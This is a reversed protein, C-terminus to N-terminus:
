TLTGCAQLFGNVVGSMGNLPTFTLYAVGGTENTRSLGEIYLDLPPEEDFWVVELAAGQWKERGREYSKFQLTSWDGCVHRVSVTDILDAVGRATSIEGLAAAPLLGTGWESSRQPPGILKDQVVDRTSENTIGAAWARVPRDFRKGVWWAPYAGTLHMSMEAAGSLTKGCRNGAMFLRERHTVGAAHFEEQKAYPRYQKLKTQSRHLREEELLQLLEQELASALRPPSKESALAASSM